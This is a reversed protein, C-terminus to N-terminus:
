KDLGGSKVFMFGAFGALAILTILALTSAM